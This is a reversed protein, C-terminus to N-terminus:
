EGRREPTLRRLATVIIRSSVFFLTTATLSILNLYGFFLSNVVVTVELGRSM